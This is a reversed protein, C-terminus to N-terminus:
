IDHAVPSIHHKRQESEYGKWDEYVLQTCAQNYRGALAPQSFVRTPRRGGEIGVRYLEGLAPSPFAMSTPADQRQAAFLVAS